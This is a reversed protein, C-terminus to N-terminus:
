NFAGESVVVDAKKAVLRTFVDVSSMSRVGNRSYRNSVLYDTIVYYGSWRGNGYFLSGVM